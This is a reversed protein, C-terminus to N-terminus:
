GLKKDARKSKRAAKRQAKIAAKEEDTLIFEGESDFDLGMKEPYQKFLAEKGMAGIDSGLAALLKSKQTDYAGRNMANVRTERNSQDINIKDVGLNFQQERQSEQKNEGTSRLYADSLAKTSQLQSGVLNARAASGSGGSAGVIAERTGAASERVINQLAEEDVLTKKYRANSRAYGEPTPKKLKALQIANMISPMGRAATILGDKGKKLGQALLEQRSLKKLEAQAEKSKINLEGQTEYGSLREADIDFEFEPSGPGKLEADNYQYFPSNEISARRLETQEADYQDEASRLGEMKEKNTFYNAEEQQIESAEVGAILEEATQGKGSARPTTALRSEEANAILDRADSFREKKDFFAAEEEVVTDQPPKADTAKGLSSILGQMQAQFAPDNEKGPNEAAFSQIRAEIDATSTGQPCPPQGYGGCDGTSGGNTYEIKGGMANYKLKLNPNSAQVTRFQRQVADENHIQGSGRTLTLGTPDAVDQQFYNVPGYKGYDVSAKEIPPPAAQFLNNMATVGSESEAFQIAGDSDENMSKLDAMELPDRLPANAIDNTMDPCPPQGLGGCPTDTAGGLAFKNNIAASQRQGRDIQKEEIDENTKKSKIFSSAAGAVTGVAAGVATGIGPMIMTGAAAGMLAGKGAGVATQAGVNVRGEDTTTYEDVAVQASDGVMGGLQTMGGMQGSSMGGGGTGGGKPEGGFFMKNQSSQEVTRADPAPNQQSKVYEQAQRLRDLLEMETEKDDRNNSDKYKDQIRKSDKAFSDGKLYSPLNFEKLLHKM